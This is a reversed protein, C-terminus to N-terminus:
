GSHHTLRYIDTQQEGIKISLNNLNSLYTKPIGHNQWKSSTFKKDKILDIDEESVNVYSLLNGNVDATDLKLYYPKLIKRHDKYFKCETKSCIKSPREVLM